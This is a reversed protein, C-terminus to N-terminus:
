RHLDSLIARATALGGAGDGSLTLVGGAADQVVLRNSVGRVEAWADNAPVRVPRITGRPGEATLELTGLLRVADGTRAALRAWRAVAEDVGRRTVRLTRPDIGFALWALIRLKAEADRGDLDRAPDAEAYGASQAAAVADRLPEGRAVADLLFNTTGNLIAEVRVIPASLTHARLVRVIPVGACVAGEFDISTGHQAALTLLEPGHRAILEKNVTIVRIGRRLARTVLTHAPEVGGLAEVLVDPDGGLLADADRTLLQASTRGAAILARLGPRLREPTRVLVRTLTASPAAYRSLALAFADGVAGCGALAIRPVHTAQTGARRATSRALADRLITEVQPVELLFADHGHPSELAVYRAGIEQTWQQVVEAPYLLDGPIGVGTIRDAIGGLADALSGRGRSVDHRDMADLLTVYSEADFRAVLREGHRALWGAVAPQGDATPSSGFRAELGAASRYSLMGAMRALALGDRAGGVRVATRMIAHWGAGLATQAAPAALVVVDGVCAPRLAAVELAVMGGLSGGVVLSLHAVGFADLLAWLAAAQDRTTIAPFADAREVSPGTSGACGGLVNVCLVAHTTTNLARGTGVMPAWWDHVDATGTLAHAVLVVNSADANITGLLTYRLAVDRLVEGSELVLEPLLHLGQHLASGDPAHPVAEDTIAADRAAPAVCVVGDTRSRTWAEVRPAVRASVRPERSAVAPSV